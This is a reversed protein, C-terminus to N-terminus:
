ASQHQFRFSDVYHNSVSTGHTPIAAAGTTANGADGAASAVSTKPNPLSVVRTPVMQSGPAPQVSGAVAVAAAAANTGGSSNSSVRTVAPSQSRDKGIM